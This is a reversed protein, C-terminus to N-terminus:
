KTKDWTWTNQISKNQSNLWHNFKTREQMSKSLKQCIVWGMLHLSSIKLLIFNRWIPYILSDKWIQLNIKGWKFFKFNKIGKFSMWLYLETTIWIWIFWIKQISRLWVLSKIVKSISNKLIHFTTAQNFSNSTM